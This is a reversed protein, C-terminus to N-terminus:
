AYALPGVPFGVLFGPDVGKLRTNNIIVECHELKEIKHLKLKSSSHGFYYTKAGVKPSAPRPFGPDEVESFSQLRHKIKLLANDM